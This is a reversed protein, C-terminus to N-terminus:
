PAVRAAMGLDYGLSRAREAAQRRADGSRTAVWLNTCRTGSRCFAFLPRSEDDFLRAMQTVGAGPFDLATVPLHYYDLGAALAAAAFQASGPQGAEEGDPRNNVLVKYGAAAIQPVQELSIQGAVAITETLKVANM